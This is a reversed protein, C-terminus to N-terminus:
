ILDSQFKTWNKYCDIGEMVDVGIDEFFFELLPVGRGPGVANCYEMFLLGSLLGLLSAEMVSSRGSFTEM